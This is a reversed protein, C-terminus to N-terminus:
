IFPDDDDVELQRRIIERVQRLGGEERRIRKPSRSLLEEEIIQRRSPSGPPAASGGARRTPSGPPGPMLTPIRSPSFTSGPSAPGAGVAPAAAPKSTTSAPMELWEEGGIVKAKLFFPCLDCLMVLSEIAEAESIPVSSSKVVATVVESRELARRKRTSTTALSGVGSTGASSFLMWVAEAITGLRGLTCRRRLEEPGVMKVIKKPMQNQAEKETSRVSATVATKKVSDGGESESKVRIREYLAARRASTPTEPLAKSASSAANTPTTPVSTVMRNTPTSTPTVRGDSSPTYAAALKAAAKGFSPTRIGLSRRGSSPTVAGDSSGSGPSEGPRPGHPTVPTDGPLVPFPIMFRPDEKRTPSPGKPTSTIPLSKLPTPLHSPFTLKRPTSGVLQAIKSVTPAKPLEPLNALPITAAPKPPKATLEQWTDLKKRLAKKRTEGGGTWRAVATMGGVRGSTVDEHSWDVEIGIGYAPVRKNPSSKDLRTVHMTSSICFGMGRRIWDKAPPTSSKGSLFPNADEDDGGTAAPIPKALFPNDEPDEGIQEGEVDSDDDDLKARKEKGKKTSTMSEQKTIHAPVTTGDWEWIWCLKKLDEVTARVGLGREQLSMHNLVNPVLGTDPDPSIQATALSVSLAQELATQINVLRSFEESLPAQPTRPTSKVTSAPVASGPMLSTRTASKAPTAHSLRAKKPTMALDDDDDLVKRKKRASFILDDMNQFASLNKFLFKLDVQSKEKRRVGLTFKPLRWNERSPCCKLADWVDRQTGFIFVVFLGVSALWLDPIPSNPTSDIALISLILGIFVSAVFCIVRIAMSLNVDKSEGRRVARWNRFINYGISAQMVMIVLFVVACFISIWRTFNKNKVSCYFFRRNRTVADPNQLGISASASVYVAFAIWPLTLLLISKAMEWKPNPQTKKSGYVSIWVQFVLAFTAM